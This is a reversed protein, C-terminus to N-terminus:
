TTIIKTTVSEEKIIKEIDVNEKPNIIKVLKWGYSIKSKGRVLNGIARGNIKYRRGFEMASDCIVKEKGNELIFLKKHHTNTSQINQNAIRLNNKEYNGNVDIRDFTSNRLGHKESHEKLEEIFDFYLDIPFDYKLEINNEGYYKYGSNNPNKCRQKMDNFRCIIAKKYESNPINKICRDGHFFNNKIQLCRIAVKEQVGCCICRLIYEHKKNDLYKIVEYDDFVKGVFSFYYDKGCNTANHNLTAKKYNYKNIFKKHGCCLCEVFFGYSNEELVKYKM